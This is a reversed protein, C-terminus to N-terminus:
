FGKIRTFGNFYDGTVPRANGQRSLVGYQGATSPNRRIVDFLTVLKNAIAIFDTAAGSRSIHIYVIRWGRDLLHKIRKRSVDSRGQWSGRHVEIAINLEDFTIDINYTDVPTQHSVQVGLNRLESIIELEGDGICSLNKARTEAWQKTKKGGTVKLAQISAKKCWETREKTTYLQKRKTEADVIVGNDKIFKSLRKACISYKEALGTITGGNTYETIISPDIPRLFEPRKVGKLKKSIVDFREKKTRFIGDEKLYKTLTNHSINCLESCKMISAGSLYLSVINKPIPKRRKSTSNTTM